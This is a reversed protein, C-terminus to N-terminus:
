PAVIPIARPTANATRNCRGTTASSTVAEAVEGPPSAVSQAYKVCPHLSCGTGSAVDCSYGQQLPAQISPARKTTPKAPVLPQLHAKLQQVLQKYVDAHPAAPQTTGQRTLAVVVVAVVVISALAAVM